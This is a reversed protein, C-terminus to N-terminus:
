RGLRQKLESHGVNAREPRKPQLVGGHKALRRARRVSYPEADKQAKPQEPSEVAQVQDPEGSEGQAVEAPQSPAESAPCESAPGEDVKVAPKPPPRGDMLCAMFLRRWQNLQDLVTVSAPRPIRGDANRCECELAAVLPGRAVRGDRTLERLNPLRRLAVVANGQEIRVVHGTARLEAAYVEARAATVVTRSLERYADGLIIGILTTPTSHNRFEVLLDDVAQAAEEDTVGAPVALWAAWRSTFDDDSNTNIATTTL